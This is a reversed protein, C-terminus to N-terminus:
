KLRATNQCTTGNQLPVQTQYHLFCADPVRIGDKRILRCNGAKTLNQHIM